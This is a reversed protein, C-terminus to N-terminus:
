TQSGMELLEDSSVEEDSLQIDEVDGGTDDESQKV